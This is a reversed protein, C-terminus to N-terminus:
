LKLRVSFGWGVKGPNGHAASLIIRGKGTKIQKGLLKMAKEGGQPNRDLLLLHQSTGESFKPNSFQTSIRMKITKYHRSEM